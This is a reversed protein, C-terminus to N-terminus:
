YNMTINDIIISGDLQIQRIFKGPPATVSAWMGSNSQNLSICCIDEGADTATRVLIVPSLSIYGFKISKPYGKFELRGDRAFASKSTLFPPYSQNTLVDINYLSKIDFRATSLNTGANGSPSSEFDESQSKGAVQDSDDYSFWVKEDNTRPPSLQIIPIVVGYLEHYRQQDYRAKGLAGSDGSLYFFSQIPLSAGEGRRWTSIRIENHVDWIGPYPRFLERAVISQYFRNATDSSSGIRVGWGCITTYTINPIFRSVWQQGTNIGQRECPISTPMNQVGGCGKEDRVNTHADYPFVCLIELNNIKGPPTEHAPYFIFGNHFPYFERFNTDRRYWSFSVGGSDISGQSPDWPLFDPSSDTARIMVGSCLFAPNTASGCDHTTHNYWDVLQTVADAGTKELNAQILQKDEGLGRSVGTLSGISTCAGLFLILAISILTSSKKKNM